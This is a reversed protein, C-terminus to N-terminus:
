GIALSQLEIQVLNSPLAPYGLKLALEQGDTLLWRVFDVMVENKQKDKPNQYLLLWTFSAIPYSAKGRANTISVRFDPTQTRISSIASASAATVSEPSAMVFEDDSNKVAAYKLSGERSRARAIALPLYGFSDPTQSVFGATGEAGKYRYSALPWNASPNVITARFAPSVKSLYEAIVHTEVSGNPFEHRVKIDTPPLDVDPNDNAIAPDDWKTIKGLFIGALTNGSFRLQSVRALNYVPVVANLAVPIQLIRGSAKALRDDAIPVDTVAFSKTRSILMRISAVSGLAQYSIGTGHHLRSYEDIWASLLPDITTSGAGDIRIGPVGSNQQWANCRTPGLRFFVLVCFGAALATAKASSRRGTRM